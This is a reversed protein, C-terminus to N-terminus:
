HHEPELPSLLWSYLSFVMIAAGVAILARTAILGCFMIVLGLAVFLPKITSYPMIIGLDTPTKGDQSNIRASQHDAEKGEWLPYRSTVNPLAAFNYEPPPSPITWELTGAGWPNPGAIEGSRRSKFFNYIFFLMAIPWLAAGATSLGNYLAWGQGSDYTYIRRPMGLMGSFHMPFFTLNMAVFTLWFHIKGIKEDMLRGFMKPFYHYIGAFIGMISGGVLVYHFHAVIFYTDTQQLDAPPSSHMIGSIGGITFL